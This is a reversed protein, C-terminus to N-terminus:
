SASGILFSILFMGALAISPANEQLWYNLPEKFGIVLYIPPIAGTALYRLIENLKLSDM